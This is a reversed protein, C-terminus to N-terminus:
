SQSAGARARTAQAAAPDNPHPGLATITVKMWEFLPLGRLLGELEAESGARYLSLVSTEGTPLPRKWVRVLHGEDALKAAAVAEATQRDKVEAEPTREPVNIEFDVLFEM